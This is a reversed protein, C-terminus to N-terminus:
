LHMHTATMNNVFHQAKNLQVSLLVATELDAGKCACMCCVKSRGTSVHIKLYWTHQEEYSHWARLNCLYTKQPALLFIELTKNLFDNCVNKIDKDKKKRIEVLLYYM